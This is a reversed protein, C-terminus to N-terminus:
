CISISDCNPCGKDCTVVLFCGVKPSGEAHVLHFRDRAHLFRRFRTRAHVVRHSRRRQLVLADREHQPRPAPRPPDDEVGDGAAGGRRLRRGQHAGAPAPLCRQDVREGARQPRAHGRLEGAGDADVALGRARPPAAGDDALLVGKEREERHPLGQREAGRERAAALVRVADGLRRQPAEPECLGRPRADAVGRLRQEAADGAALPAPQGDAALQDRRAAADQEQVLRRGGEVRVLRKGDRPGQAAERPLRADGHEQAHVLGARLDAQEEVLELEQAAAADDVGPGELGRLRPKRREAM